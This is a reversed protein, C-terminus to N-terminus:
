LRCSKAASQLRVLEGDQQIQLGGRASRLSDFFLPYYKKSESCISCRWCSHL